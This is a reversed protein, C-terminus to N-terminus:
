GLSQDKLPGFSAPRPAVPYAPPGSVVSSPSVARINPRHGTKSAEPCAAARHDASACYFCLRLTRRREREAERDAPAGRSSRDIDMPDHHVPTPAPDSFSVVPNPRWPKPNQRPPAVARLLNDQRLCEQVFDECSMQRVDVAALKESLERSIACRLVDKLVLGTFRTRSATLQFEPYFDAFTRNTQRLGLLRKTATHIPDADGLALELHAVLEQWDAYRGSCVGNQVFGTARDTTRAFAYYVRSERTAYRDASVRFKVDLGIRFRELDESVHPGVGSFTPIDITKESRASPATHTPTAQNQQLAAAITAILSSLQDPNQPYAPATATSQQFQQEGQESYQPTNMAAPSHTPVPIRSSSGTGTMPANYDPHGSYSPNSM